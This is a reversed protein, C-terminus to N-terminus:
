DEAGVLGGLGGSFLSVEDCWTGLLWLSMWGHGLLWDMGWPLWSILAGTAGLLWGLGECGILDCTELVGLLIESPINIFIPYM